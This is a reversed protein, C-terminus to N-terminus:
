SPTKLLDFPRIGLVSKQNANLKKVASEGVLSVLLAKLQSHKAAELRNLFDKKDSVDLISMAAVHGIIFSDLARVVQGINKKEEVCTEFSAVKKM